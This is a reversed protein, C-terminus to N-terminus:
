LNSEFNVDFLNAFGNKITGDANLIIIRHVKTIV